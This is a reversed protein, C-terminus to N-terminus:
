TESNVSRRWWYWWQWRLKWRWEWCYWNANKRIISIAIFSYFLLYIVIEKQKIKFNMAGYIQKQLKWVYFWGRSSCTILYKNDPTIKMWTIPEGSSFTAMTRTTIFDICHVDNSKWSSSFVFTGSEDIEIKVFDKMKNQNSFASKMLAWYNNAKLEGFQIKSDMGIAIKNESVALWYFKRPELSKKTASSFTLNEKVSRVSLNSKADIYVLKVQDKSEEIFDVGIVPLESECFENYEIIEGDIFKFSKTKKDRSCTMILNHRNDQNNQMKWIAIDLIENEHIEKINHLFLDKSNFIWIYGWADGWFVYNENNIKVVKLVRIQGLDDSTDEEAKTIRKLHSYEDCLMGIRIQTGYFRAKSVDVHWKRITKDSSGSIFCFAKESCESPLM